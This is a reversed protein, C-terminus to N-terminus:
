VNNNILFSKVPKVPKLSLQEVKWIKLRTLQKPGKAVRNSVFFVQVMQFRKESSKLPYLFQVNISCNNFSFKECFKM